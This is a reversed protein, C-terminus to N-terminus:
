TLAGNFRRIARYVYHLGSLLTAAAALWMCATRLPTLETGVLALLILLVLLVQLFTTVKGLWSPTIDFGDQLQHMVVTGVLLVVDRSIVILVLWFPVWSLVGLAVFASILLLKDALPDLYKGLMTRQNWLRAVTGDLADTLGAVVFVTLAWRPYGYVLLFVFLPSLLIRALSLVNPLNM